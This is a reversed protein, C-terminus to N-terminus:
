MRQPIKMRVLGGGNKLRYNMKLGTKFDDGGLIDNLIVLDTSLKRPREDNTGFGNLALDTAKGLGNLIDNTGFGDGNLNDNTGFGGNTKFRWGGGDNQNYEDGGCKM